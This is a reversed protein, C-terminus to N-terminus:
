GNSEGEEQNAIKCVLAGVENGSIDAFEDGFAEAADDVNSWLYRLAFSLIRQEKRDM